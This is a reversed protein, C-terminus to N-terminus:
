EVEGKPSKNREPFLMKSVTDLATGYNAVKEMFPFWQKNYYEAFEIRTMNGVEKKEFHLIKDTMM